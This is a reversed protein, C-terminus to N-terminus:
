TLPVKPSTSEYGDCNELWVPDFNIPWMFWGSRIGHPSGKINLVTPVGSIFKFGEQWPEVKPHICASHCDGPIDRRHKCTYCENM